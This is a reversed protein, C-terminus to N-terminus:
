TSTISTLCFKGREDIMWLWLVAFLTNVHGEVAASHAAYKALMFKSCIATIEGILQKKDGVM